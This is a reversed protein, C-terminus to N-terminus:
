RLAKVLADREVAPLDPRALLESAVTRALARADDPAARDALVGEVSLSLNTRMLDVDDRAGALEFALRLSAIAAHRPSEGSALPALAARDPAVRALQEFAAGEAFAIAASRPHVRRGARLMAFGALVCADAQARSSARHPADFVFTSGLHVFEAPDDPALTLVSWADDLQGLTRGAREDADFRLRVLEAVFPRLPGLLGIWPVHPLEVAPTSPALRWAGFFALLAVLPLAARRM